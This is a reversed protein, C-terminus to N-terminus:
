HKSNIFLRGCKRGCTKAREYKSAKYIIKCMPCTKEIDDVGSKRRAASKCSNSCYNQHYIKTFSNKGCEECKIEFEKRNNWGNIGHIRHWEKGEESAHWEKTLPRIEECFMKSRERRELTMHSRLHDSAHILKLNDLNNNSKNEDLHHIHFGKPIEGNNCKWVWAHARVRPSTTSIWYGSKKDHYFKKDYHIQHEM